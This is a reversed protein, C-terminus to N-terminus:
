SVDSVGVHKNNALCALHFPTNGGMCTDNPDAGKELLISCLKSNKHKAAYYLPSNDNGDHYRTHARLITFGLMTIKELQNKTCAELLYKCEESFSYDTHNAAHLNNNSTSRDGFKHRVAIRQFRWQDMRAKENVTLVTRKRESRAQDVSRGYIDSSRVGLKKDLLLKNYGPSHKAFRRRIVFGRWYKQIVIAARLLQEKSPKCIGKIRSVPGGSVFRAFMEKKTITSSDRTYLRFSQEQRSQAQILSRSLKKPDAHKYKDELVKSPPHNRHQQQKSSIRTSHAVHASLPRQKTPTPSHPKRPSFSANPSDTPNTPTIKSLLRSLQAKYARQRSRSLEKEVTTGLADSKTIELSTSLGSRRSDRTKKVLYENRAQKLKSRLM